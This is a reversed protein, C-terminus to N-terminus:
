YFFNIIFRGINNFFIAIRQFFTVNVLNITFTTSEHYEERNDDEFDLTLNFLNQGANLDKGILQLILNNNIDLKELEWTKKFGKQNLTIVVNKPVSYSSKRLLFSINFEDKYRVETPYELNEIAISPQDLIDVTLTISKSINNNEASIVLDRKGAEDINLTFMTRNEQSIGLNLKQCQDKLCVQLNNLYLNGINKIYCEASIQEYTYYFNKPTTCNLILETSYKKTEEQQRQKLVATMESLTYYPEYISSQYDTQTSVNRVSYVIVPITYLSNKDLFDSVQTIWYVKKTELPKLYVFKRSNGLIEIENVKALGLEDSIYYDNLNQIEAEILNYSGFSIHNKLVSASLRLPPEISGTAKNLAVKFDLKNTKLDTNVSRWEYKTDSDDSDISEKLRIHTPDIWGVQRYTIDYPLWGYGPFYVEAWAHPGWNNISNYNTYALGSVFKAPIGVSRALAIFLSTLEDCVGIRNSLVWSSKQSVEATLTELSYEVNKETWEALKHVVIYLDDEGEALTSALKIIDPNDSDINESPQTYPILEEPINKLPFDVKEKILPPNNYISVESDLSFQLNKETPNEWTYTLVSDKEEAPPNTALSKVTQQRDARPYFSLMVKINNITYDDALPIISIDSKIKLNVDMKETNSYDEGNIVSLNLLILLLLLLLLLRKSGM